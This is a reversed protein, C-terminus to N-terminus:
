VSWRKSEYIYDNRCHNLFWQKMHKWRIDNNETLVCCSVLYVVNNCYKFHRRTEEYFICKSSEVPFYSLLWYIETFYHKHAFNDHCPNKPDADLYKFKWGWLTM